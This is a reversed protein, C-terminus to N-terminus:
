ENRNILKELQNKEQLIKVQDTRYNAYKNYLYEYFFRQAHGWAQNRVFQTVIQENFLPNVRRQIDRINERLEEEDEADIAGPPIPLFGGYEYPDPAIFYPSFQSANTVRHANGVNNQERTLAQGFGRFIDGLSQFYLSDTRITPILDGINEPLDQQFTEINSLVQQNNQEFNGLLYRADDIYENTLYQFYTLLGDGTTIPPGSGVFKPLIPEDIYEQRNNRTNNIIGKLSSVLTWTRNLTQRRIEEVQDQPIVRRGRYLGGVEILADISFFDPYAQALTGPDLDLLQNLSLYGFGEESQFSNNIQDLTIIRRSAQTSNYYTTTNGGWGTIKVPFGAYTPTFQNILEGRNATLIADDSGAEEYMMRYKTEIYRESYRIGRDMYIMYSAIQFAIPFYYTGLLMGKDTVQSPQSLDNGTYLTALEERVATIDQGAPIYNQLDETNYLTRYFNGLMRKYTGLATSPDFSSKNINGYESTESINDLTGIYVSKIINKTNELPSLEDLILPNKNFEEDNQIHPYVMRIFPILEYFSGLIQKDKLDEILKRTLYETIMEVTGGSRWNPYASAMPMINMFFSFLNAQVKRLGAEGKLIDEATVCIDDTKQLSPKNLAAIYRPMRRKGIDNIVSNNILTDIRTTYNQHPIADRMREGLPTNNPTSPDPLGISYNSYLTVMGGKRHYPMKVENIILVDEDNVIINSGSYELGRYIRYDVTNYNQEDIGLTNSSISVENYNQQARFSSVEDLQGAPSSNYLIKINGNDTNACRLYTAGTWGEYPQKNEVEKLYNYVRNSFAALYPIEDNDAGLDGLAQVIRNFGFGDTYKRPEGYQIRGISSPSLYNPSKKLEKILGEPSNRISYYSADLYDNPPVPPNRYQPINIRNPSIAANTRSDSWIFKYVNNRTYQNKRAGFNGKVQIDDESWFNIELNTRFGVRTGNFGAPTQFYTANPDDPDVYIQNILIERLSFFIQYFLETGLGSNYLNYEPQQRTQQETGFLESFKKSIWEAFQNSLDAIDQLKQNYWDLMPLSDILRQIELEINSLDKLFSCLNNIKDIKSSVIDNYQAEIEPISFDFTLPNIFGDKKNCYAELPSLFGMEGLNDLTGNLANGIALFYNRIRDVSLNMMNYIDVDINVPGADIDKIGKVTELIHELLDNSADGNLLQQIEVPTTMLSIDRILPTLQEETVDTTNVTINGDINQEEVNKIGVIRAIETIDIGYLLENLNVFGYDEKRFNNPLETEPDNPGCGLLAKIVDKVIGAVISKIFNLLITELMKQYLVSQRAKSSTMSCKKFEIKPMSSISSRTLRNAEPPLGLPDLFQDEIFDGIVDLSCFIQSNIYREVDRGVRDPNQAYYAADSLRRKNTEDDIVEDRILIIAQRILSQVRTKSDWAKWFKLAYRAAAVQGTDCNMNNLTSSIQYRLPRNEWISEFDKPDGKTLRGYTEFIKKRRANREKELRSVQGQKNAIAERDIQPFLYESIFDLVERRNDNSTETSENYIQQSNKIISFTTQTLIGFANIVRASEVAENLYTRGGTGQYYFSGNIILHDLQYDDTFYMQVFDTDQIAIKNYNYFLELLSFFSNLRDVEKELDIGNLRDPGLNLDFLRKDYERLVSRTFFIYRILDEVEFQITNVSRNAKSIIRKAKELTSIETEELSPDVSDPSPLNEIDQGNIKVAYTWRSGPRLNKDTYLVFRNPASYRDVLLQYNETSYKGTSQLIVKIANNVITTYETKGEESTRNWNEQATNLGGPRLSDARMMNFSYNLYGLDVDDTRRTFYYNKDVTNYYTKDKEGPLCNQRWDYLDVNTDTIVYTSARSSLSVSALDVEGSYQYDPLDFAQRLKNRYKNSHAPPVAILNAIDQRGQYEELYSVESTKSTYKDLVGATSLQVSLIQLQGLAEDDSIEVAEGGIVKGNQPYLAFYALLDSVQIEPNEIADETKVRLLDGVKPFQFFYIYKEQIADQIFRNRRSNYDYGIGQREPTGLSEAYPNIIKKQRDTIPM